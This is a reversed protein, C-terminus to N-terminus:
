TIARRTPRSRSRAPSVRRRALRLQVKRSETLLGALVGQRWIWDASPTTGNYAVRRFDNLLYLAILAQQITM